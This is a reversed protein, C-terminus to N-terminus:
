KNNNKFIGRKTAFEIDGGVREIYKLHAEEIKEKDSGTLIDIMHWCEELAEYADVLNDLYKVGIFKNNKDVIHKYSGAM